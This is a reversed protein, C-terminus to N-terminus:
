CIQYHYKYLRISHNADLPFSKGPAYTRIAEIARQLQPRTQAIGQRRLIARLIEQALSDELELITTRPHRPSEEIADLIDDIETAITVQHEYLNLLQEKTTTSVSRLQERVRNRLYTDDTNTQDQRFHLQHETAYRYIDTKTWRLLPRCLKANRMPALGRWGTGRLLNIVISEIVDDAHHAVYIEDDPFECLSSLFAYRKTRATAESCDEGLRAHEVAFPLHYSQALREVFLCDESSNPRIGHDFHAVLVNPEQRLYHLMVVSDIGGSVALIKRM